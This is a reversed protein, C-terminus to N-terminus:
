YDAGVWDLAACVFEIAFMGGRVLLAAVSEIVVVALWVAALFAGAMGGEVVGSAARM